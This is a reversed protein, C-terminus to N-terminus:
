INAKPLSPLQNLIKKDISLGMIHQIAKSVNEYAAPADATGSLLTAVIMLGGIIKSWSPKEQTTEYQASKLYNILHEKHVTSMFNNQEILDIAENLYNIVVENDINSPKFVDDDIRSLERTLKELRKIISNLRTISVLVKSISVLNDQFIPNHNISMNGFKITINKLGLIFSSLYNQLPQNNLISLQVGITTLEEIIKSENRFEVLQANIKKNIFKSTEEIELLNAEFDEIISRAIQYSQWESVKEYRNAIADEKSALESLFIKLEDLNKQFSYVMSWM